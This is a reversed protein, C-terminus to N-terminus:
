AAAAALLGLLNTGVHASLPALLSGSRQRLLGFLAGGGATVAVVGAVGPAHMVPLGGAPARVSAVHWLGFVASTAVLARGAPLVRSALALLVGRFAMEECLVTGLPIHVAARLVLQGATMHVAASGALLTRLPPVALSVGYGAAVLGVAAGGWCLGSRATGSGLGLEGPSLGGRRAALLLLATAACNAGTRVAPAAPLAPVVLDSWALLGVSTGALPGWRRLRATGSV